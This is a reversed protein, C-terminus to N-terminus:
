ELGKCVEYFILHTQFFCVVAMPFPKCFVITGVGAQRGALEKLELAPSIVWNRVPWNRRLLVVEGGLCRMLQRSKKSEQALADQLHEAEKHEALLLHKMESYKFGQPSEWFFSM